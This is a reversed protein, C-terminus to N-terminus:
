LRLPLKRRARVLAEAWWIYPPLGLRAVGPTDYGTNSIMEDLTFEAVLAKARDVFNVSTDCVTNNALPGDSCDPFAAIVGTVAWTVLSLLVLAKAKVTM